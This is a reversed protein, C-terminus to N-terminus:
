LCFKEHTFTLIIARHGKINKIVHRRECDHTTQQCSLLSTLKILLESENGCVKERFM